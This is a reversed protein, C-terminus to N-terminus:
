EQRMQIRADVQNNTKNKRWTLSDSIEDKHSLICFRRGTNLGLKKNERSIDPGIRGVVARENNRRHQVVGLESFLPTNKKTPYAQYFSDKPKLRKCLKRVMQLHTNICFFRSNM